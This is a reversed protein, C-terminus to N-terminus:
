RMGYMLKYSDKEGKLQSIVKHSEILRQAQSYILKEMFVPESRMKELFENKNLVQIQTNELAKISASRPISLMLSIEGFFDGKSLV